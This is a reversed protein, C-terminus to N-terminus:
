YLKDNNKFLLDRDPRPILTLRVLRQAKHMTYSVDSGKKSRKADKNKSARVGLMRANACCYLTRTHSAKHFRQRTTERVFTVNQHGFVHVEHRQSIWEGM